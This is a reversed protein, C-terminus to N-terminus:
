ESEATQTAYFQTQQRFLNETQVAAAAADRQSGEIMRIGMALVIVVLVVLILAYVWRPGYKEEPM